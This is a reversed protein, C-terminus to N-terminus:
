SNCYMEVSLTTKRMYCLYIEYVDLFKLNKVQYSYLIMWTKYCCTVGFPLGCNHTYSIYNTVKHLKKMQPVNGFSVVVPSVLLPPLNWILLELAFLMPRSIWVVNNITKLPVHTIIDSANNQPTHYTVITILLKM